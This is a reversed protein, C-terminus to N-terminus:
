PLSLVDRSFRLTAGTHTIAEADVVFSLTDPPSARVTGAYDIFGDSRIERLEIDQRVGRLDRAYATVRAPLSTEDHAPGQRVGVLLLHTGRERAIGYRQAVAEGLALSPSLSARVRLEGLELEAPLRSAAAEEALGARGAPDGGCAALGACLALVAFVRALRRAHETM